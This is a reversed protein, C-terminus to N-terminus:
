NSDYENRKMTWTGTAKRSIPIRIGFVNLILRMEWEGYFLQEQPNFTGTYNILPGKRSRDIATDGNNTYYHLSVYQKHFSITNNQFVGLINSEDPSAGTGGTDRATGAVENKYHVLNMNFHLEKGAHNRYEKGYILTGSWSGSLNLEEM